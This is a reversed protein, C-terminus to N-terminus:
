DFDDQYVPPQVITKGDVTVNIIPPPGGSIVAITTIVWTEIGNKTTVTFTIELNKNIHDIVTRIGDSSIQEYLIDSM